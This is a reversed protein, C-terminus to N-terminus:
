EDEAKRFTFGADVEKLVLTHGKQYKAKLKNLEKQLKNRKTNFFTICTRNQMGKQQELYDKLQLSYQSRGKLFGKGDVSASDVLQIPTIYVLSDTFSASVGAVYVGYKKEKPKKSIAPLVVCAAAVFCIIKLYRM